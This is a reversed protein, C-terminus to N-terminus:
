TWFLNVWRDTIVCLEAYLQSFQKGVKELFNIKDTLYLQPGNFGPKSYKNIKLTMLIQM